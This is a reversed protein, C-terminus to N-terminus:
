DYWSLRDLWYDGVIIHMDDIVIVDDAEFGFERNFTYLEDGSVYWLFYTYRGDLWEHFGTGDSYFFFYGHDWMWEGLLIGSIECDSTPWREFELGAISVVDPSRVEITWIGETDDHGHTVLHGGSIYWDFFGYSSEWDRWGLGGPDFIYVGGDWVWAGILTDTIIVDEALAPIALGHVRDMRAGGIVITDHDVISISWTEIGMGHPQININGDIVGWSFHEEVSEWDRWGSGDSNFIYIGGSWTWEGVVADIADGIGAAPPPVTDPEGIWEFISGGINVTYDDLIRVVWAERERGPQTIELVNDIVRWNFAGPGANWDRRGTGDEYFVYYGESWIWIGVFFGHDEWLIALTGIPLQRLEAGPAPISVRDIRVAFNINQALYGSYAATNVGIVEGLNNFLPGGSNGGTIPATFQLMDYIRYIDFEVAEDAMRSLVGSTFTNRYIGRPSGIAFVDEGVRLDDLSSITVYEFARGRGDVQIVALDNNMDYNYYGTIVYREGDHTYIAASSWGVMVHHNTVGIGTSTIFFGSGNPSYGHGVNVYITFVSNVNYQFVDPGTLLVRPAAPEAPEDNGEPAAVDITPTEVYGNEPQEDTFHLFLFVGLAFVLMLLGFLLLKPRNIAKPRPMNDTVNPVNVTSIGCNECFAADERLGNGCNKCIM